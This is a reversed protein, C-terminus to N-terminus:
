GNCGLIIGNGVNTYFEKTTTNFMGNEGDTNRQAPILLHEVGDITLKCSYIRLVGTIPDSNPNVVGFLRFQYKGGAQTGTFVPNNNVYVSNGLVSITHKSQNPIYYNQWDYRDSSSFYGWFGGDKRGMSLYGQQGYEGVMCVRVNNDDEFMCVFEISDAPKKYYLNTPLLCYSETGNKIYELQKYGSPLASAQQLMMMRRRNM